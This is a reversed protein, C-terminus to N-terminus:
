KFASGWFHRSSFTEWRYELWFEKKLFEWGKTHKVRYQIKMGHNELRYFKIHIRSFTKHYWLSIKTICFFPSDSKWPNLGGPYFKGRWQKEWKEREWVCLLFRSSSGLVGMPSEKTGGHFRPTRPHFWSGLFLHRREGLQNEGLKLYKWRIRSRKAGHISKFNRQYMTNRWTM